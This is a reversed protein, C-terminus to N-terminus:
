SSSRVIKMKLAHMEKSPEIGLEQQLFSHFDDLRRRAKVVHGQNFYVDIIARMAPECYPDLSLALYAYELVEEVEDRQQYMQILRVLVQLYIYEYHQRYPRVWEETEDEPLLGLHCHGVVKRYYFSAKVDDGRADYTKATEFLHQVDAIDTWWHEDMEFWYFNNSQRHIFKSNERPGLAPELLHRLCHMTVHLNGMATELPIDLWFLEIFQDASCLKGPNLLFWKLLARAKNRRWMVKKAPEEQCLLRFQGFLYARYRADQERERPHAIVQKSHPHHTGQVIAM